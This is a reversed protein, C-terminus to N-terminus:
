EETRFPKLDTVGSNAYIFLFEKDRMEIDDVSIINDDYEEDTVDGEKVTPSVVSAITLTDVMESYKKYEEANMHFKAGDKISNTAKEILNSIDVAVDTPIIGKKILKVIDPRRVEFYIGSPMELKVVQNYQKRRNRFYDAKVVEPTSPQVEEANIQVEEHYEEM